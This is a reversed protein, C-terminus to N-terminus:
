KRKLLTGFGLATVTDIITLPEPVKILVRRRGTPVAQYFVINDM